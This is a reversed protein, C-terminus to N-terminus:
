AVRVAIGPYDLVLGTADYTLVATVGFAPAAYEYRRRGEEGDDLRAYRQELREVRLDPQRVYAAPADAAEGIRLRLRNVPFANTLASGELDVEMCGDLGPAPAGDVRWRGAGDGELLAEHRGAASHGAVRARRTVWGPSAEIAYRVGWAVGAEVGTSHGHLVLRDADRRPFVVEFGDHADVLRWAASGALGHEARDV